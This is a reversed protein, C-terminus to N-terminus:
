GAMIGEDQAEEDVKEMQDNRPTMMHAFQDNDGMTRAKKGKGKKGKYM